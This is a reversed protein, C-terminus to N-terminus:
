QVKRCNQVRQSTFPPHACILYNHPATPLNDAAPFARSRAIAVVIPEQASRVVVASGANIEQHPVYPPVYNFGGPGAAGLAHPHARQDRLDRKWNGTIIRAPSLRQTL